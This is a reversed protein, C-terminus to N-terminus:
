NTGDGPAPNSTDDNGDLQDQAFQDGLQEGEANGGQNLGNHYNM